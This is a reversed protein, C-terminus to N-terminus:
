VDGLDGVEKTAAVVVPEDVEHGPLRREFEHELVLVPEVVLHMPFSAGRDSRMWGSDSRGLDGRPDVRLAVEEGAVGEGPHVWRHASSLASGNPNESYSSM